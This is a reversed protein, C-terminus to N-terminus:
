DNKASFITSQEETSLSSYGSTYAKEIIEETASRKARSFYLGLGAGCILGGVHAFVGGINAAFVSLTCILFLFFSLTEINPKTLRGNSRLRSTRKIIAYSFIAYVAASSGSLIAGSDSPIIIQFLLAGCVSGAFYVLVLRKFSETQLFYLSSLYLFVCNCLLHPTTLQTLSYSFIRWPEHIMSDWDSPLVLYAFFPGYFVEALYLYINALAMIWALPTDIVIGILRRM